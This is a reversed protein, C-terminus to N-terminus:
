IEVQFFLINGNKVHDNNLQMYHSKVINYDNNITNRFSM